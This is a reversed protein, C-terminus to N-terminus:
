HFIPLKDLNLCYLIINTSWWKLKRALIQLEGGVLTSMCSVRVLIELVVDFDLMFAKPKLTILNTEFDAFQKFTFGFKNM